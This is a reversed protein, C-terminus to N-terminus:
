REFPWQKRVGASILFAVIGLGIVTLGSLMFTLGTSFFIFLWVGIALLVPLPYLPMRFPFESVARRRHLLMLGIAQGVFQIVIRMALIAMIVDGLRFLLSFVFGLGGLFLLSVYPFHRTPHLKAFVKFFQGDVAAAYPVRSYGLLVAFLSSFAVLLVLITALKAAGPGYLTEVFTSVIFNSNQAIQWPVVSVVSLNMLLYLGAIGIISIFMSAPINRTPKQIEGGLHCVNYYGLYCYITKVSAQGLGAALLGGSVSGISQFTDALPIRANTLGGIIIWGLTLLVAGWMILGIKGISDIKRYLLAIIILVVVGSVGKRQWEDLPMLYSAYQAFGIAGSAMVLPAQILTQWVYLFSLLRGWRREGYSIKLFNYSGGAQPFAAGLEAWVFADILSVFAGLVWAWMFLPGGLTKIVLPLVVFPGIGVMDIMNLATGQLLTLNRPLAASPADSPQDPSTANSM